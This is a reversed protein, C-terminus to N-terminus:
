SIRCTLKVLTEALATPDAYMWNKWFFVVDEDDLVKFDIPKSPMLTPHDAFEQKTAQSIKICSGNLNLSLKMISIPLKRGRIIYSDGRQILEGQRGLDNPFAEKLGKFDAEIQTILLKWLDPAKARVVGADHLRLANSNAFAVQQEVDQRKLDDIWSRMVVGNRPTYPLIATIDVFLM